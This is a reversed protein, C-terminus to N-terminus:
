FTGVIADEKTPDYYKSIQLREAFCKRRNLGPNIFM